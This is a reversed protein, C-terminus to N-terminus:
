MAHEHRWVWNSCGLPAVSRVEAFPVKNRMTAGREAPLASLVQVGNSDESCLPAACFISRSCVSGLQDLLTQVRVAVPLAVPRGAKDLAWLFVPHHYWTGSFVDVVVSTHLISANPHEYVFSDCHEQDPTDVMTFQSIVSAEKGVM